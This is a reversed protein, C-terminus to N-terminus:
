PEGRTGSWSANHDLGRRTGRDAGQKTDGRHSVTGAAATTPSRVHTDPRRQQQDRRQSPGRPGFTDTQRWGHSTLDHMAEGRDTPIGPVPPDIETRGGAGRDHRGAIPPHREGAGDGATEADGDIVAPTQAGGDAVQTVDLDERAHPDPAAIRDAGGARRVPLRGHVERHPHVILVPVRQRPELAV